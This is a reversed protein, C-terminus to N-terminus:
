ESQRRQEKDRFVGATGAFVLATGVMTWTTIEEQLFWWGLFVAVVPNVYGYTMVIKAPLMQLAKVFSTFAIVSGFIVLYGWAAWAEASPDPRGERTATALGLFLVGGLLQQYASSLEPSLRVPRRQQLVSGIGWSFPALFLALLAWLDAGQAHRLDPLSIATIGAFGVLLSLALLPTPSRRDIIAEFLAVWLPLAGVLLAAYASDAYQEAWVVAGNGGVWLLLASASLTIWEARTPRLRNRRLAGWVWLIAGGLLVRGAAMLFPPFGGDENVAIRIALYTSGWVFYIVLLHLIGAPTVRRSSPENM